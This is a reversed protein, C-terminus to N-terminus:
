NADADLMQMTAKTHKDRREDAGKTVLHAEPTVEKQKRLKSHHM